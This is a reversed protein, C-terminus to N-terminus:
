ELEVYSLRLRSERLSLHKALNQSLRKALNKLFLFVFPRFIIRGFFFYIILVAFLYFDFLDV